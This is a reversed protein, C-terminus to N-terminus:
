VLELISTNKAVLKATDGPELEVDTGPSADQGIGKITFNPNTIQVKNTSISENHVTIVDGPTITAPMAVDVTGGSGDVQYSKGVAITFSSSENLWKTAGIITSEISIIEPIKSGEVAPIWNTGLDISPDNNLNTDVLSKWLNGDTTQSIDGISYTINANYIGNLPKEEWKSSDVTPDNDQNANSLSMYFNGDSGEVINNLDYSVQADWLSFNGLQKDGGVPDREAYQVSFEDLFKVRASGSFFVNPLNGDADVDVQAANPISEGSDAYTTLPSNTGSKFFFLSGLPKMDTIPSQFRAMM